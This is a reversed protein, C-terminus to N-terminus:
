NMARMLVHRYFTCTLNSGSGTCAAPLLAGFPRGPILPTFSYAIDVQHLYFATPEPDTQQTQFTTSGFSTCNSKGPAATGLTTSCVRVTAGQPNAIGGTLDQYTIYSVTSTTGTPGAAPLTLTGVTSFGTISYLVGSRPAASLNLAVVFCYGFNVVNLIILLLLPMVLITEVLAQGSSDRLDRKRIM